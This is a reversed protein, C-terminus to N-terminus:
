GKVFFAKFQQWWTRQQPTATLLKIQNDREELKSELYGNRWSAAQLQNQLDKILQDRYDDQQRPADPERVGVVVNAGLERVSELAPADMEADNTTSSVISADAKLVPLCSVEVLWREASGHKTKMGSLTGRKLRKQVARVSIGILSAAEEVSVYGNLERVDVKSNTDLERGDSVGNAGVDRVLELEPVDVSLTNADAEFFDDLGATSVLESSQIDRATDNM